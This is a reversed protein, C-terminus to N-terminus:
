AVAYCAQTAIGCQNDENRSMRIYGEEGWKAGWSNKVIYYDQGNETGYGVALVAHDLVNSNCTPENYVGSTYLQFSRQSADISVSVPGMTGIAKTLEEESRGIINKVSRIKAGINNDDFNCYNREGEYPYSKESDIGGNVITYMLALFPNGGDCGYNRLSCDMLNQESLLVLKGTKKFYAGEITGTTSFAWCSGCNGQNKVPTVAGKQRWDISDPLDGLVEIVSGDTGGWSKFGNYQKSFEKNTLDAFENVGVTYTHIGLAHEANHKEIFKLNNAFIKKRKDHEQGTLLTKKYKIKFAEWETDLDFAQTAVLALALVVLIRMEKPTLKFQLCQM